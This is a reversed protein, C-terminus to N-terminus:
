VRGECAGTGTGTRERGKGEWWGRKRKSPRERLRQRADQDRTSAAEFNRCAGGIGVVSGGEGSDSYDVNDGIM